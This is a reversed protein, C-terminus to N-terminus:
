SYPALENTNNWFYKQHNKFIKEIDSAINTANQDIFEFALEPRESTKWSPDGIRATAGGVQKM